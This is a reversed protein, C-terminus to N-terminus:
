LLQFRKVYSAAARDLIGLSICTLSNQPIETLGSDRVEFCLQNEEKCKSILKEIDRHHARLVIKKQDNSYWDWFLLSDEMTCYYVSALTCAHGVQAAIKGQSMELDQNVIIYQILEEM